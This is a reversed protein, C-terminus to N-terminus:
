PAKIGVLTSGARLYSRRPSTARIARISRADDCMQAAPDTDPLVGRPCSDDTLRSVIIRPEHTLAVRYKDHKRPM